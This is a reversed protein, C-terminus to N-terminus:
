LSKSSISALSDELWKLYWDTFSLRTHKGKYQLPYIGQESVRGDVWVNGSEKGTIILNTFFGCGEHCIRLMGDCWKADDYEENEKENWAVDFRFPRSLHITSSQRANQPLDLVGKKLSLLGYYPGPSENGFALLFARYDVPLNINHEKEFNKLESESISSGFKYRHHSAGFVNYNKDISTLLSLKETILQINGDIKSQGRFEQNHELEEDIHIKEALRETKWFFRKGVKRLHKAWESSVSLQNKKKHAMQLKGM